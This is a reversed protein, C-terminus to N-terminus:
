MKLILRVVLLSCDEQGCFLSDIRLSNCIELINSFIFTYLDFKDECKSLHWCTSIGNFGYLYFGRPLLVPLVLFCQLSCSYIRSVFRIWLDLGHFKHHHYDLLAKFVNECTMTSQLWIFDRVRLLTCLCQTNIGLASVFTIQTTCPVAILYFM